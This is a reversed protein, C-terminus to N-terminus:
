DKVLSSQTYLVEGAHMARRREGRKFLGHSLGLPVKIENQKQIFIWQCSLGKPGTKKTLETAM